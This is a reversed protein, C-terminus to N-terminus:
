KKIKQYLLIIHLVINIFFLIVCMFKYVKFKVEYVM